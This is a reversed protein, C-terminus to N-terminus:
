YMICLFVDGVPVLYDNCFPIRSGLGIRVGRLSKNVIIIPLESSCIQQSSKRGKPCNVVVCNVPDDLADDVGWIVPSAKAEAKIDNQFVARREDRIGYPLKEGPDDIM